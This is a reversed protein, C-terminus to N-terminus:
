TSYQKVNQKKKFKSINCNKGIFCMNLSCNCCDAVHSGMHKTKPFFLICIFIMM